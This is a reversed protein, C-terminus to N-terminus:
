EIYPIFAYGNFDLCGFIIKVFSDNYPILKAFNQCDKAQKGLDGNAHLPLGIIIKTIGYELCIQEIRKIAAQEPIRKIAEKGSIVIGMDDGIAVGIRKTGVDLGLLREM